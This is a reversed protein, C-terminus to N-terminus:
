YLFCLQGHRTKNDAQQLSWVLTVHPSATTQNKMVGGGRKSDGSEEVDDPTVSWLTVPSESAENVM